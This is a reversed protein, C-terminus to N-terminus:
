IVLTDGRRRLKTVTLLLFKFFILYLHPKSKCKFANLKITRQNIWEGAQCILETDNVPDLYFGDECTLAVSSTHPYRAGNDYTGSYEVNVGSDAKLSPKACNETLLSSFATSIKNCNQYLICQLGRVALTAQRRPRHIICTLM